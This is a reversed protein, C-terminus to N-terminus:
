PAVYYLIIITARCAFIRFIYRAFSAFIAM